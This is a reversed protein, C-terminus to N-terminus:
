GDGGFVLEKEEGVALDIEQTEVTWEQDSGMRMCEIVLRGAPVPTESSGGAPVGDGAVTVGDSAIRYHIYGDKGAYKIRVEAGPVLTVVLDGLERGALVSVDRLLGVRRGSARAALCYAGPPLGEFRFTGDDGAESM